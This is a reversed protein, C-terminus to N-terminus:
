KGSSLSSAKKMLSTATGKSTSSSGGGEREQEKELAQIRNKLRNYREYHRRIPEKDEKTPQPLLSLGHMVSSQNICKEEGCFCCCCAGKSVARHYKAMFDTDFKKLRAKIDKKKELLFQLDCAMPLSSSSSSSSSAITTGSLKSTAATPAQIHTYISHILRKCYSSAAMERGERGKRRRGVWVCGCVERGDFEPYIEEEKQDHEDDVVANAHYLLDEEDNNNTNKRQRTMDTVTLRYLALSLIMLRNHMLHRCDITGRVELPAVMIIYM